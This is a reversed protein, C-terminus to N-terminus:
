LRRTGPKGRTEVVVGEVPRRPGASRRQGSAWGPERVPTVAGDGRRTEDSEFPRHQGVSGGHASQARQPEFEHEGREPRRLVVARNATPKITRQDQGPRRAMREIRDWDLEGSYVWSWRNNGATGLGGKMKGVAVRELRETNYLRLESGHGEEWTYFAQVLPGIASGWVWHLNKLRLAERAEVTTMAGRKHLKRLFRRSIAPLGAIFEEVRRAEESM